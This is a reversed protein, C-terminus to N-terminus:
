LPPLPSAQNHSSAPPSTITAPTSATSTRLRCFANEILHRGRYREKDQCIARKRSRRGLIVPVTGGADRLLRRLQDADYGDDALPYRMRGAQKLLAPAAKM